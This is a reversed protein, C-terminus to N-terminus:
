NEQKTYLHSGLVDKCCGGPGIWLDFDPESSGM